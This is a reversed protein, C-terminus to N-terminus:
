ITFIPRAGVVILHNVTIALEKKAPKEVMSLIQTYPLRHVSDLDGDIKEVLIHDDCAAVLRASVLKTPDDLNILIMSGAYSGFADKLSTKSLKEIADRQAVKQPQEECVRELLVVGLPAVEATFSLRELGRLISIQIQQLGCKKAESILTALQTPATLTIGNYSEVADGERLGIREAQSQEKVQSIIQMMKSM